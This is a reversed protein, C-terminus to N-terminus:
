SVWKILVGSRKVEQCLKAHVRRNKVGHWDLAVTVVGDVRNCFKYNNISVKESLVVTFDKGYIGGVIRTSIKDVYFIQGTDVDARLLDGFESILCRLGNILVVGPSYINLKDEILCGDARLREVREKKPRVAYSGDPSVYDYFWSKRYELVAPTIVKYPSVGIIHMFEEILLIDPRTFDWVNYGEDLVYITGCYENLIWFKM